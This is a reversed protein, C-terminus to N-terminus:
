QSEFVVVAEHLKSGHAFIKLSNSFSAEDDYRKIELHLKLSGWAPITAPFCDVGICSCSAFWEKVLVESGTFNNLELEVPTTHRTGPSPPLRIKEPSFFVKEESLYRAFHEMSGFLYLVSFSSLFLGSLSIAVLRYKM